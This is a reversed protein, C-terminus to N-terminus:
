TKHVGVPPNFQAGVCHFIGLNIERPRFGTLYLFSAMNLGHFYRIPVTDDLSKSTLLVPM